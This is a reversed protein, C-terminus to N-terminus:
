GARRQARQRRPELRPLVPPEGVVVQAQECSRRLRLWGVQDDGGRREVEFAIEAGADAPRFEWLNRLHAFPGREYAVVIRSPRDLAVRSLFTERFPGFGITMDALM